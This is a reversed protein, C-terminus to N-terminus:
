HGFHSFGAWIKRIVLGPEFLVGLFIYSAALRKALFIIPV